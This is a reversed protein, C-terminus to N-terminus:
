VTALRRRSLSRYEGPPFIPYRGSRGVMVVINASGLRNEIRVPRLDVMASPFNVRSPRPQRRLHRAARRLAIM